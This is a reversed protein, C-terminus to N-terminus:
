KRIWPVIMSVQKRYADYTDGFANRMDREELSVGIVIYGTTMVAFLLHGWTMVPTVWFAILFGLMIPHRVIKYFAPTRFPPPSYPRGTSFLFVQRLGFLDFHDILFTSILVFLWGMGFIVWFVTVAVPHEIEWVPSAIPRWQWFLLALLLSSLLVYSSREAHMPVFRSWWHKFSPRAMVSHQVAFLGLLLLDVLVSEGLSTQQGSDISKPVLEPAPAANGPISVQFSSANRPRLHSLPIPRPDLHGNNGQHRTGTFSSPGPFKRRGAQHRKPTRAQSHAKRIANGRGRGKGVERGNHLLDHRWALAEDLVDFDGVDGIGELLDMRMRGADVSMSSLMEDGHGDAGRRRPEDIRLRIQRREHSDEARVGLIQFRDGVPQSLAMDGGDRHLGGADIMQRQDVHEFTM